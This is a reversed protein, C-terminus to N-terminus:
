ICLAGTHCAHCSHVKGGAVLNEQESSVTHAGDGGSKHTGREGGDGEKKKKGRGKINRSLQECPLSPSLHESLMEGLPSPSYPTKQAVNEKSLPPRQTLVLIM